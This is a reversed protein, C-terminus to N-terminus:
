MWGREHLVKLLEKKPVLVKGFTYEGPLYSYDSLDDDLVRLMYNCYGDTSNSTLVFTFEPIVSLESYRIGGIFSDIERWMAEEFCCANKMFLVYRDGYMTAPIVEGFDGRYFRQVAKCVELDNEMAKKLLEEFRM